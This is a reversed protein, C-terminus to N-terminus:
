QEKQFKEKTEVLRNTENIPEGMRWLSEIQDYPSQFEFSITVQKWTIHM